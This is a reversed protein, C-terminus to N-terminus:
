QDYKDWFLKESEEDNQYIKIDKYLKSKIHYTSINSTFYRTKSNFNWSFLDSGSFKSAGNMADIIPTQSVLVNEMKLEVPIPSNVIIKSNKLEEKKEKEIKNMMMEIQTQIEDANLVDEELILEGEVFFSISNVENRLYVVIGSYLDYNFLIMLPIDVWILSNSPFNLNYFSKEIRELEIDSWFGLPPKLLIMCGVNKIQYKEFITQLTSCSNQSLIKDPRGKSFLRGSFLKSGRSNKRYKRIDEPNADVIWDLGRSGHSLFFVSAIFGSSINFINPYSDSWDTMLKITDSFEIIIPKRKELLYQRKFAQYWDVLNDNEGSQEIYFSVLSKFRKTFDMKWFNATTISYNWHKNLSKLRIFSGLPIYSCIIEIIESPIDQKIPKLGMFHQYQYTIATLYDHTIKDLDPTKSKLGEVVDDYHSWMKTFNEDLHEKLDLQDQNMRKFVIETRLIYKTGNTLTSGSHCHYNPFILCSGKKPKYTELIEYNEDKSGELFKVFGEEPVKLFHTDGGEFDDNLYVIVTHITSENEKLTILGDIHPKFYQGKLYKTFKMGENVKFPKWIGDNNFDMPKIGDIDEKTLFKLIRKWMISSLDGSLVCARECNRYRSPYEGSLPKYGIELSQDIYHSCEEESFFNELVFGNKLNTRKIETKKEQFLVKLEKKENIRFYSLFKEDVGETESSM